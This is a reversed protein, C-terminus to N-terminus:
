KKKRSKNIQVLIKKGRSKFAPTEHDWQEEIICKLEDQIEPYTKSLNFLITLSFAKIAIATTPNEVFAFCANMLEGHYVEPITVLELVRLSNRVIADANNPIIIQAILDKIYPLVFENKSKAAWSVSWAAKQAIRNDPDMFCAILEQFNTISLCAYKAIKLAQPRSHDKELEVRINM